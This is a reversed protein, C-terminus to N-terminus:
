PAYTIGKVGQPAEPSGQAYIFEMDAGLANFADENTQFSQLAANYQNALATFQALTMTGPDGQVGIPIILMTDDQVRVRFDCEEVIVFANESQIGLFQGM